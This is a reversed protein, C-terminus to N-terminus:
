RQDQQYASQHSTSTNDCAYRIIKGRFVSPHPVFRNLRNSERVLNMRALHADITSIAVVVYVLTPKRVNGRCFGTHLAVSLNQCIIGSEGWNTLTELFVFGKRPNLNMFRGIVYIEVMCYVNVPTNRTHTAVTFYVFHIHHLMGLGKAHGETQIAMAVGM